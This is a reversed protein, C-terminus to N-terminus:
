EVAATAAPRDAKMAQTREIQSAMANWAQAARLNRERVNALGSAAADSEAKQAQARYFELTSM